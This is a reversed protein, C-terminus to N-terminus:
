HIRFSYYSNTDECSWINYINYDCVFSKLGLLWILGSVGPDNEVILTSEYM